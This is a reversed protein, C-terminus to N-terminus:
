LHNKWKEMYPEQGEDEEFEDASVRVWKTGEPKDIYKILAQDVSCLAHIICVTFNEPDDM